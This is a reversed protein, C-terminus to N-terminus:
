GTFGFPLRFRKGWWSSRTMNEFTPRATEGARESALTNGAINSAVRVPVETVRFSYWYAFLLLSGGRDAKYESAAMFIRKHRIARAKVALKGENAWDLQLGWSSAKSETVVDVSEGDSQRSRSIKPVENTGSALALIKM